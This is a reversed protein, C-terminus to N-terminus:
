ESSARMLLGAIIELEVLIAALLLVVAELGTVFMTAALIVLGILICRGITKLPIFTREQSM